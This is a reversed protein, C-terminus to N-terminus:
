LKNRSHSNIMENIDAKGLDNIMRQVENCSTTNLCSEVDNKYQKFFLLEPQPVSKSALIINDYKLNFINKLVMYFQELKYKTVPGKGEETEMTNILGKLITRPNETTVLDNVFKYLKMFTMDNCYVVAYFLMFGTELDEESLLGEVEDYVFQFMKKFYVNKNKLQSGSCSTSSSFWELFSKENIKKEVASMLIDQRKISQLRAGKAQDVLKHLLNDEFQPKPNQSKWMDLELQDNLVNGNKDEVYWSLKFGTMRKDKWSRLTTLNAAQYRYWVQFSRLGLEAKTFNLSANVSGKM